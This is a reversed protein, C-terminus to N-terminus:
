PRSDSEIRLPPMEKISVDRQPFPFEIGAEHYADWIELLVLNTVNSLGNQPDNIWIRLELDVGNDGFGKLHCQPPPEKMVREISAAAERALRIAGRVDSQYSIGVPIRLRVLNHTYSWNEVRQSILEENPILHETGDRTIVSVYRANLSNIWGYTEGIAIVDGPKVSKDMLLILGSILNSVVKQLGFGVGLGVAGSFVAFVTLDIGVTELAVVAALIFLPIRALKGFLVQASPTLNETAALRREILRSAVAALWLFVGLALAGKAVDLVSVRLEGFRIAIGDLVAVTPGLLGIINLAAVTWAAVAIARSWGPQRVFTTALRIIIWATLLSVASTVVRHGWGAEEAAAVAVWLVVLWVLPLTLPTLTRIVPALFRDFRPPVRVAGLRTGIRPEAVKALLFAFAVVLIETLTSLDFVNDAAWQAAQELTQAVKSLESRDNL